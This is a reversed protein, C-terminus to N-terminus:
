SAVEAAPRAATGLVEDAWRRALGYWRPRFAYVAALRLRTAAAYAPVRAATTPHTVATARLVEDAVRRDAPALLGQDVRLELHVLLNALDLAPEAAALTDPDLIGVRGRDVLLQGDHLDRHAVALPTAPGRLLPALVPTPDADPLRGARVARRYWTRTVEAEAHADHRPLDAPGTTSAFAALLDGIGAADARIDTAFAPRGPLTSLLAGDDRRELVSPFRAVGDVLAALQEHRRVLQEARGPRVVKLHDGATTRVVGRRGPRHARLQGGAAVAVALGPLKRDAGDPQLVLRPDDGLHAGPTRDRERAAATPDAFWRGAVTTGDPRAVELPVEEADRPWARVLRWTVGGVRPSGPPFPIPAPHTM